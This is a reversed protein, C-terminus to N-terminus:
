VSKGCDINQDETYNSLSDGGDINLIHKIGDLLEDIINKVNGVNPTTEKQLTNEDIKKIVAM